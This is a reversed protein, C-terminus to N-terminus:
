TSSHASRRMLSTCVCNALAVQPEIRNRSSFIPASTRILTRRTTNAM